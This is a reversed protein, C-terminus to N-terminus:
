IGKYIQKRVIEKPVNIDVKKHRRLIQSGYMCSASFRLEQGTAITSIREVGPRAKIPSQRPCTMSTKCCLNKTIVDGHCLAITSQNIAIQM